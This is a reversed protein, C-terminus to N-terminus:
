GEERLIVLETGAEYWLDIPARRNIPIVMVALGIWAVVAHSVAVRCVDLVGIRARSMKMM